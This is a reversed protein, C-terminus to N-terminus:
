EALLEAAPRRRGGPSGIHLGLHQWIRWRDGARLTLRRVTREGGLLLEVADPAARGAGLGAAVREVLAEFANRWAAVDHAPVAALSTDFALLDGGAATSVEDPAADYVREAPVGASLAWARVIADDSAVAAFPTRPLATWAGGGHLWLANVPLVGRAERLANLALQHWEIQIDNLLKRWRPADAGRPMFELISRGLAAGPPTTDLQWPTELQLLWRAAAARPARRSRAGAGAATGASADAPTAGGRERVAHLVGGAARAVDNAAALLERTEGEDPLADLASLVVHDRAVAFHVPECWWTQRQPLEGFAAHWAYPATSPAGTGGFRGWVWRYAADGGGDAFVEDPHPEARALRTAVGRSVPAAIEADPPHPL